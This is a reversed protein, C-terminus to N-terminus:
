LSWVDVAPTYPDAGEDDLQRRVEKAIYLETGCFTTLSSPCSM